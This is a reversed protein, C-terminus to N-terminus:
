FYCLLTIYVILSDLDEYADIFNLNKYKTEILEILKLLLKLINFSLKGSLFKIRSVENVMQQDWLIGKVAPPFAGIEHQDDSVQFDHRFLIGVLYLVDFVSKM